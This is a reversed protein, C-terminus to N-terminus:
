CSGWGGDECHLIVSVLAVEMIWDNDILVQAANTVHLDSHQTIFLGLSKTDEGNVGGWVPTGLDGHSSQPM